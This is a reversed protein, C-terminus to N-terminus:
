LSSRNEFDVGGSGNTKSPDINATLRAIAPALATGEFLQEIAGGISQGRVIALPALDKSIKELVDSQALAQLAEVLGPQIASAASAEKEAEAQLRKIYDLTETESITLRLEVGSKERALEAANVTDLTEQRALEAQDTAEERARDDDDRMQQQTIQSEIEMKGARDDNTIAILTSEQHRKTENLRLEHRAESTEEGAQLRIRDQEENFLRLNTELQARQQKLDADEVDLELQKRGQNISILSSATDRQADELMAQIEADGIQCGLVEVETILMGNEEFLRGARVGDEDSPTLVNRVINIYDNYFAQIDYSKAVNRLISRCNDVLHQVYNEVNFWNDPDGTFNVRYSTTLEIKVMDATEVVIKDSVRNNLVRLYVDRKTNHADKPTGKSVFFSELQEDYGLHTVAPGTVVRRDGAGNIVQVAYGTWVQLRIAGDFKDDLTVTVPKTFKARREFSESSNYVANDDFSDATGASLLASADGAYAAAFSNVGRTARYQRDTVFGDSAASAAERLSENYAIAEANGPYWLNLKDDSVIRRVIVEKRPDALFMRPGKVTEIIGTDKNMVYKADGAPIAVAFHVDRDGYKIISHEARPFYIRQEKGTIFLEKGEEYLVEDETYPSTVKV